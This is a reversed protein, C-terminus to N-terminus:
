AITRIQGTLFKKARSGPKCVHTYVSLPDGSLVVFDADKGAELSGVREQLDLITANAMTMGYLAKDHSMGGRVALGAMRLFWRSDTISDDTHFGTLVGAKEWHPRM